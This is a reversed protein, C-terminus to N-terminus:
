NTEQNMIVDKSGKEEDGNNILESNASPQAPPQQQQQQEHNRSQTMAIDQVSVSMRLPSKSFNIIQSVHLMEQVGNNSANNDLNSESNTETSESNGDPKHLDDIKTSTTSQDNSESQKCRIQHSSQSSKLKRQRAQKRLEKWELYDLKYRELPIVFVSIDDPSAMFGDETRWCSKWASSYGRSHIVLDQAATVYRYKSRAQQNEENCSQQSFHNFSEQVIHSAEYNSVNDWLGDTGMILVDNSTLTTNDELPFVRVEPECTLFPKIPLGGYSAKLEHDGFGRTVGITALLRSRKGEGWVLPVKLDEYTITKMSWGTMYADRYLMQKGLDKRTPRKPFQLHTYENGLLHPRQMGLRLLRHRETTPTFDYSMEVVCDPDFELDDDNNNQNNEHNQESNANTQSNKTVNQQDPRQNKIATAKNQKSGKSIIARSDGANCVYVKGLIFLSIIATCGGAMQYTQKDQGIIADMEWFASELVGKILSDVTINHKYFDLIHPLSLQSNDLLLLDQQASIDNELHEVEDMEEDSLDAQNVKDDESDMKEQNGNNNASNNLGNKLKERNNTYKEKSELGLIFLLDSIQNLKSAIIEHLQAAATVAVAPGAHGDFMGFYFWPLQDDITVPRSPDLKSELISSKKVLVDQHSAAQDENRPSKGANICEAYGTYWPLRTSDRPLIIPRILHDASVVIEDDTKLQLFDPRSYAFKTNKDYRPHKKLSNMDLFKTKEIVYASKINM